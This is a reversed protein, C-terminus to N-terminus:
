CLKKDGSLFFDLCFFDLFRPTWFVPGGRGIRRNLFANYPLKTCEQFFITAPAGDFQFWIKRRINAPVNQLLDPLVQQLFILYKQDNLRDLLLYPGILPDHIMEAWVNVSFRQQSGSLRAAHPNVADWVHSSHTNFVGDCM